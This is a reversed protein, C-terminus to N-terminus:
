YENSSEQKPRIGVQRFLQRRSSDETILESLLAPLSLGGWRVVQELSYSIVSHPEAKRFYDAVNQIVRFADDRTMIGNAPVVPAAAVQPATTSNAAVPTAPQATEPAPLKSAAVQELAERCAALATRLNSTPPANAGCKADLAASLKGLEDQSDTLDQVLTAFFERPTQAVAQQVQEMSPSGEQVRRARAAEDKVQATALAQRVQYCALRADGDTLPVCLIPSILTGEGEAGNLGILPALRTEIGDEDPLPYLRDWYREILERALRFGDRLGAFGHLRVLAEVVFAAVELDKAKGALITSGRQLVPKWDPPPASSDALLQREAARNALRADRVAHYDSVPGGEARPDPGAPNDGAIEALLKPFDLIEPSPM